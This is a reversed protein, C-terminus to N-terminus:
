ELERIKKDWRKAVALYSENEVMWARANDRDFKTDLGKKVSEIYREEDTIIGCGTKKLLYEEVAGPPMSIVPLGMALYDWVKCNITDGVNKTFNLGLDAHYIFHTFTGHMMPGHLFINEQPFIYRKIEPSPTDYLKIFFEPASIASGILHIEVEPLEEAIRKLLEIYWPSYIIGPLLLIKKGEPYPNPQPPPYRWENPFGYSCTFCNGGMRDKWKKMATDCTFGIVDARASVWEMNIAHTYGRHSLYFEYKKLKNFGYHATLFSYQPIDDIFIADAEIKRIDIKYDAFSVIQVEHGLEALKNAIHMSQPAASHCGDRGRIVKEDSHLHRKLGHFLIKM